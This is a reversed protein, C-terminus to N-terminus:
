PFKRFFRFVLWLALALSWILTAMLAFFPFQPTHLSYRTYQIRGTAIKNIEDCAEIVTSENAGAYLKGGTKKVAAGWLEDNTSPDGLQRGSVTRIFFIPINNSGSEALIDDLSKGEYEVQYDEGDSILVMINGYSELFAFTKFLDVGQNIAKVIKTGSNEFREYEEPESLLRISTLVNEYDSNFPSVVYSEDGFEILGILDQYGGKMRARVFYEAAAAATYFPEESRTKLKQTKEFRNGYTGGGMSGSADLLILIRRGVNTVEQEIFTTYPDALAVFFFLIGALVLVVPLCRMGPRQSSHLSLTVTPLVIGTRGPVNRSRRRIFFAILALVALSFMTVLAEGSRSLRLQMWDLKWGDILLRKCLRIFILITEM